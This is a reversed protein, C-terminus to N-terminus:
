EASELKPRIFFQEDQCFQIGAALRQEETFKERDALLAQKDPKPEPKTLYARGWSLRALRKVVDKWTVKRSTTEVRHPTFEFGYEALNTERSKKEWFLAARNAACYDQVLAEGAAIDELVASIAQQHRRQVEAVEADMAAVLKARHIKLRVVEAVSAELSEQSAISLTKM